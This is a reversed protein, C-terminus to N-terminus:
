WAVVLALTGGRCSDPRPARSRELRRDVGGIVLRVTSPPPGGDLMSIIETIQSQGPRRRLMGTCIPSSQPHRMELSPM